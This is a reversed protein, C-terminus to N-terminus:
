VTSKSLSISAEERPITTFDYSNTDTYHPGLAIILDALEFYAQWEQSGWSGNYHGYVNPPEENILGKGFLTTWTPWGTIKVLADVEDLIRLPRCEGDVLILPQRADYIRELVERLPEHPSPSGDPILIPTSLRSALVAADVMDEPLEIYVPQSHIVAQELAWDIQEPVRIPDMLNTQAKTVHSAMTAFHRYDGDALTHHIRKRAARGTACLRAVASQLGWSRRFHVL